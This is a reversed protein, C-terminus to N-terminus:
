NPKVVKRCFEKRVWRDIADATERNGLMQIHGMRLRDVAERYLFGMLAKHYFNEDSSKPLAKPVRNLFRAMVWDDLADAIATGNAQPCIEGKRLLEVAEVYLELKIAEHQPNGGSAEFCDAWITAYDPEVHPLECTSAASLPEQSRQAVSGEDRRRLWEMLAAIAKAAKFYAWLGGAPPLTVGLGILVGKGVIPVLWELVTALDVARGESSDANSAISHEQGDDGTASDRTASGAALNNAAGPSAENTDDGLIRARAEALAAAFEAATVQQDTQGAPSSATAPTTASEEPMPDPHAQQSPVYSYIAIDAPGAPSTGTASKDQTPDSHPTTRRGREYPGHDSPPPEPKPAPPLDPAPRWEDDGGPEPLIPTTKKAPECARGVFLDRLEQESPTGQIVEVAQGSRFVVYAPVQTVGCWKAEQRRLDYDLTSIPYGDRKLRDVIPAMQRCPGCWRATYEIVTIEPDRAARVNGAVALLSVLALLSRTLAKM